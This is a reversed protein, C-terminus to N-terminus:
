NEPCNVRADALAADRDVYEGVIEAGRAEARAYADFMSKEFGDIVTLATYQTAGEATSRILLTKTGGYSASLVHCPVAVQPAIAPAIEPAITGTTPGLDEPLPGGLRSPTVAALPAIHFTPLSPTDDATSVPAISPAAGGDAPDASAASQAPTEHVM